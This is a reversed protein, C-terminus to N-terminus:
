AYYVSYPTVYNLSQHLRENNYWIVFKELCKELDIVTEPRYYFIAEQKLTRWLREVLINDFCRGKHDMSIRINKKQLESTFDKSTFQAGQDTNFIDPINIELAAKLTEVCFGAELTPSLDYSLIYRSYLDIIAIFYMFRDPLHIYTIDTGWVQNPHDIVMGELLYPYVCQNLASKSTNVKREPFLGQIDMEQMLGLVKKHNILIHKNKLAHSIKRYGYRYDSQQYIEMILNATLSDSDIIPHYYLRSRVVGLLHCQQRISLFDEAFDVM